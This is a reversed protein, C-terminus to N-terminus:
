TTISAAQIDSFTQTKSFTNTTDTNAKKSLITALNDGETYTEFVKLIEQIKDVITNEPNDAQWLKWMTDLNTKDTKSMYGNATASALNTNQTKDISNTLNSWISSFAPSTEDFKMTGLYLTIGQANGSTDFFSQGNVKHISPNIFKRTSSEGVQGAATEFHYTDWTSGNYIKYTAQKTAM